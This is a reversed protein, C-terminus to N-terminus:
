NIIELNADVWEKKNAYLEGQVGIAIFDPFSVVPLVGELTEIEVEVGEPIRVIQTTAKKIWTKVRMGISMSSDLSNPIYTDYFIDKKCPYEKGNPQIVILDVAPDSVLEADQWSVKFREVELAPRIQVTTKKRVNLIDWSDPIDSSNKLKM